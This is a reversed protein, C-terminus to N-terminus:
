RLELLREESAASASETTQDRLVTATSQHRMHCDRPTRADDIRVFNRVLKLIEILRRLEAHLRVCRVVSYIGAHADFITMHNLKFLDHSSLFAQSQIANVFM